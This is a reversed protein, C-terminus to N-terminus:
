ITGKYKKYILLCVLGAVLGGLVALVTIKFYKM